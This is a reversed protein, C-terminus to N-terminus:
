LLLGTDKNVAAQIKEKCKNSKIEKLSNQFIEDKFGEVEIM